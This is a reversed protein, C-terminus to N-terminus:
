LIIHIIGNKEVKIGNHNNWDRGIRQLRSQADVQIAHDMDTTTTVVQSHVHSHILISSEPVVTQRQIMVVSM